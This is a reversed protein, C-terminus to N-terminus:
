DDEYTVTARLYSGSDADKPTYMESVAKDIDRYTGNKSSASAWQWRPDSVAGDLTM